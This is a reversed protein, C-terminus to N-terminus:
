GRAAAPRRWPPSRTGDRCGAPCGASASPRPAPSPRCTGCGPASGARFASPTPDRERRMAPVVDIAPGVAAVALDVRRVEDDAELVVLHRGHLLDGQRLRRPGLPRRRPAEPLLRRGIRGRGGGFGGAAARRIRQGGLGVARVAGSRDPRLAEHPTREPRGAATAGGGSRVPSAGGAPAGRASRRAAASLDRRPRGRAAAAIRGGPPRLHRAGAVTADLEPFEALLGSARVAELATMGEALPVTVLRQRTPLAYVVEVVTPEPRTAM